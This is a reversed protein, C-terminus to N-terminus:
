RSESLELTSLIDAVREAYDRYNESEPVLLELEDRDILPHVWQTARSREQDSKPTWGHRVLYKQLRKLSVSGLVTADTIIVNV